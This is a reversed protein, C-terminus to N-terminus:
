AMVQVHWVCITLCVACRTKHVKVFQEGKNATNMDKFNPIANDEDIACYENVGCNCDGQCQVCVGLGRQASDPTSRLDTDSVTSAIRTTGSTGQAYRHM